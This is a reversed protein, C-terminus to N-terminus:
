RLGLYRAVHMKATCNMRKAMEVTPETEKEEYRRRQTRPEGSVVVVPPVACSSAVLYSPVHSFRPMATAAIVATQRMWANKGLNPMQSDLPKPTNLSTSNIKYNNILHLHYSILFFISGKGQDMSLVVLHFIVIIIIM